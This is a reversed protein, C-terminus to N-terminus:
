VAGSEIYLYLGPWSAWSPAVAVITAGTTNPTLSSPVFQAPHESLHLLLIRNGEQLRQMHRYQVLSIALGTISHSKYKTRQALLYLNIYILLPIPM